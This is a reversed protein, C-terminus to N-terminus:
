ASAYALQGTMKAARFKGRWKQHTGGIFAAVKANIPTIPSANM